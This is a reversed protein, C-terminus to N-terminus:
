EVIVKDPAAVRKLREVLVDWNVRANYGVMDIRPLLGGKILYYGEGTPELGMLQCVGDHLYCGFGIQDYRFTEFFSLFGRSFLDSASGGGISAINKVAKQSITHSSDDDEPTSLWAFFTVPKWNELALKNVYGSLRGTINGFEFKQTLQELDLNEFEIDGTVQPFDTLLGSSNLHNIKIIGGFVNAILEGDLALTKNHYDVGPINGSINGSLPVWGLAASLKELNVGDVVGAFSVDPEDGSKGQWSFKAVNISGDFFALRVKDALRFYNGQSIFRLKTEALPLGKIGLEQWSLESSKVLASDASWNLRAMGDKVSLRKGEDLVDLHNLQISTDVLKNQIINFNANTEGAVSMGAFPSEAFYPNIYSMLLDQLTNSTLTVDAKNFHIGDQYFGTAKGTLTGANPHHYHFQQVDILRSPAHLVGNANLTIPQTGVDLYVPDVYLSGSMLKSESHWLWQSKRALKGVLHTSLHLKETAVKGDQSQDTLDIVEANVDIIQLQELHGSLLGKVNLSGQKAQDQNIKTPKPPNINVQFLKDILDNSINNATFQAQWRQGDNVLVASLHAGGIHADVLKFINSNRSLHFSFTAMPSQWYASLVSAKGQNCRIEDHNWSFDHCRINALRLDNFPKPLMLKTASMNFQPKQQNLGNVAVNVGELKWGKGTISSAQLTGVDVAKIQM